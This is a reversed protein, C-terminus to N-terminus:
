RWEDHLLPFPGSSINQLNKGFLGSSDDVENKLLRMWLHCMGCLSAKLGSPRCSSAMQQLTELVAHLQVEEAHPLEM